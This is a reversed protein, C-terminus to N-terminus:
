FLSLSQITSKEPTGVGRCATRYDSRGDAIKGFCDGNLDSLRAAKQSAARMNAIADLANGCPHM